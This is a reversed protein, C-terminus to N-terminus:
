SWFSKQKLLQTQATEATKILDQESAEAEAQRAADQEHTVGAWQALKQQMFVRDNLQGLADQLDETLKSMDRQRHRAKSGTFLDGFFECAYRLKKAQIRLKHRKEAELHSAANFKRMKKRQRKLVLAARASLKEAGKAKQGARMWSGSEVFSLLDLMTLCFAQSRLLVMLREYAADREQQIQALVSASAHMNEDARLAALLVDLDRATGLSKFLRGIEARLPGIEDEPLVDEFFSILSRLRRIAVRMQHLADPVGTALFVRENEAFHHICLSAVTQFGTAATAKRDLKIAGAKEIHPGDGDTLHFGRAAKTVVEFRLPVTEALQRALGLADKIRGRVVEIEIEQLPENRIDTKISGEDLVLSLTSEESGVIWETRQVEVRFVPMLPFRLKEHLEAPCHQRLHDLDPESGAVNTEYEGRAFLGESGTGPLKLTQVTHDDFARLRLSVKAKSLTHDPTDFYTSVYSKVDPPISALLPHAKLRAADGPELAFKLEREMSDSSQHAIADM